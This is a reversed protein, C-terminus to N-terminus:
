QTGVGPSIATFVPAQRVWADALAAELIGLGEELLDDSIVLPPLLRLVNGYTGAPLILLGREHCFRAVRQTTVPDPEQGDPGVLELGFMAGRGRVDGVPGDALVQKELRRSAMAGIQRARERLGE